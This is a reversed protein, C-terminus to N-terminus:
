PTARLVLESVGRVSFGGHRNPARAVAPNADRQIAWRSGRVRGTGGSSTAITLSAKARRPGFPAARTSPTEREVTNAIAAPRGTTEPVSASRFAAYSRRESAAHAVVKAAGVM